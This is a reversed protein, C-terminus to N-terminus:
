CTQTEMAKLIISITKEDCGSAIRVTTGSAYLIEIQPQLMPAPDIAVPIFTPKPTINKNQKSVTKKNPKTNLHQGDQTAIKRKWRHFISTSLKQQRCFERISLGSQLRKQITSRWFAERNPESQTPKLKQQNSNQNNKQLASKSLDDGQLSDSHPTPKQSNGGPTETKTPISESTAIIFETSNAEQLTNESQM